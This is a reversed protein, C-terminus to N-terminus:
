PSSRTSDAGAQHSHIPHDSATQKLPPLPSHPTQPGMTTRQEISISSRHSLLSPQISPMDLNLSRAACGAM